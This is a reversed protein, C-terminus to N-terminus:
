LIKDLNYIEFKDKNLFIFQSHEINLIFNLSDEIKLLKNCNSFELDCILLDQNQMLYLHQANKHWKVLDLKNIFRGILYQTKEYINYYSIENEENSYIVKVGDASISPLGVINKAILSLTGNEILYLDSNCKILTQDYSSIVTLEDYINETELEYKKIEQFTGEESIDVSYIGGDNLYYGKLYPSYAVKFSKFKDPIIINLLSGNRLDIINLNDGYNIELRHSDIFSVNANELDINLTNILKLDTNIIKNIYIKNEQNSILVFYDNNILVEEYGLEFNVIEKYRELDLPILLIDDLKTVVDEIVVVKETWSTFGEKIIEIEHLGPKVNKIQYPTKEAIKQNDFYVEIEDLENALDIISTKVINQHLLDIQYGYAALLAYATAFIFLIVGLIHLFIKILKKRM